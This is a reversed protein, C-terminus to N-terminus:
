YLFLLVNCKITAIEVIRFTYSFNTHCKSNYHVVNDGYFLEIIVSFVGFNVAFEAFDIKLITTFLVDSILM